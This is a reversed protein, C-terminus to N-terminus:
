LRFICHVTLIISWGWVKAAFTNYFLLTYRLCIFYKRLKDFKVVKKDQIVLDYALDSFFNTVKM